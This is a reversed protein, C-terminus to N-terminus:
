LIPYSCSVSNDDYIIIMKDLGRHCAFSLAETRSTAMTLSAGSRTTLTPGATHPPSTNRHWLSISPTPLERPRPPWHNYRM